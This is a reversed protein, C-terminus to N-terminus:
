TVPAEQEGRGFQFRCHAHAAAKHVHDPVTVGVVHNLELLLGVVALDGADLQAVLVHDFERFGKARLAVRDVMGILEPGHQPISQRLRHQGQDVHRHIVGFVDPQHLVDVLLENM